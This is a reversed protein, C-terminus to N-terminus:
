FSLDVTFWHTQELRGFDAYAYDVRMRLARDIRINLGGGFTAGQEGDREFLNRVGARLFILDRFSYEGGVNLYESNDNPHAADTLLVIRHNADNVADWALGLRFMLPLSFEDTRFESNVVDVNGSQNPDPDTSFLIDRGSMQMKPGFNSMSAGLRLAQFPTTFVLGVDFAMTSASSNLIKERIYKVTTGISFRDTLARGYSVQLALDQVSFREAEEASPDPRDTTRVIMEGSDLYILSAALTGLNGLNTGFAAFNYNIDALYDTYAFQVASGRVKSLGAPNWYLASLDNAEAVFAGGMAVARSGVGIKLFQASTTGVKTITESEPGSTQGNVSGTALALGAILAFIKGAKM